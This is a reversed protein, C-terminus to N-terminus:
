TSARSLHIVLPANFLALTGFGCVRRKRFVLRGIGRTFVEIWINRGIPIIIKGITGIERTLLSICLEFGVNAVIWELM